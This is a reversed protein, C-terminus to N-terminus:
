LKENMSGDNPQWDPRYEIRYNNRDFIQWSQGTAGQVVVRRKSPNNVHEQPNELFIYDASDSYRQLEDRSPDFDLSKNIGLATINRFPERGEEDLLVAQERFALSYAGTALAWPSWESWGETQPGHEFKRGYRATYFSEPPNENKLIPHIERLREVIWAWGIDDVLPTSYIVDIQGLSKGQSRQELVKELDGGLILSIPKFPDPTLGISSGGIRHDMETWHMNHGYPQQSLFKELSQAIADKDAQPCRKDVKVGQIIEFEIEDETEPTKPVNNATVPLNDKNTDTVDGTNNKFVTIPYDTKERYVTPKLGLAELRNFVPWAALGFIIHDKGAVRALEEALLEFYEGGTDVMGSQDRIICGDLGNVTINAYNDPLTSLYRLGDETKLEIELRRKEKWERAIETPTDEKGGIEGGYKYLPGGKSDSDAPGITVNSKPAFKDVGIYKNAGERAAIKCVPGIDWGSAIDILTSDELYPGSENYFKEQEVPDYGDYGFYFHSYSSETDWFRHSDIVQEIKKRRESATNEEPRTSLHEEAMGIEEQSPQYKEPM